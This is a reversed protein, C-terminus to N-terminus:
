RSRVQISCASQVNGSAALRPHGGRDDRSALRHVFLGRQFEREGLAYVVCNQAARDATDARLKGYSGSRTPRPRSSQPFGVVLIVADADGLVTLLARMRHARGPVGRLTL